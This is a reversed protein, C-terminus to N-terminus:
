KKGFGLQLAGTPCEKVCEGCRICEMSDPTRNPAIGMKCKAECKGCSVCKEEEVSLRFLSFKHFFGYVAGLPCLYKCFPRYYFLSLLLLVVLISFKWGFLGKMNQAIMEDMSLPLAGFLTGSPCLYKCFWPIGAGFETKVFMPLLLVLVLLVVYKFWILIRHGPLNKRKDGTKKKGLPIKYVLDQIWGFPCLFGCVARGLLTGVVLFFGFIYCSIKYQSSSIVAQLAGIPCAGLAGPCSYCNLGPVCIRKLNGKYIKANLFGAVYGNTLVFFLAQIWMRPIKLLKKM